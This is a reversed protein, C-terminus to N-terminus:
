GHRHFLVVHKRVYPATFSVTASTSTVTVGSISPSGPTTATSAGSITVANSGSFTGYEDELYTAVRFTYESGVTLGTATCQLSASTATTGLSCGGGPITGYNGGNKKESGRVRLWEWEM